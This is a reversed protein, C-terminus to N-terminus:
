PLLSAPAPVNMAPLLEAPAIELPPLVRSGLPPPLTEADVANRLQEILAPNHSKPVAVDWQLPDIPSEPPPQLCAPDRDLCVPPFGRPYGSSLFDEELSIMPRSAARAILPVLDMEVLCPLAGWGCCELPGLDGERLCSPQPYRQDDSFAFVSHWYYRYTADMDGITARIGELAERIRGLVNDGLPPPLAIVPETVNSAIVTPLDRWAQEFATDIASVDPPPPLEAIVNALPEDLGPPLPLDLRIIVPKLVPLRLSGSQIHVRMLDIVVAGSRTFLGRMTPLSNAPNAGIEYMSGAERRAPLWRDLLSPVRPTFRQNMCFPLNTKDHFIKYAAEIDRWLPLLERDIREQEGLLDRTQRLASRLGELIPRTLEYQMSLLAGAHRAVLSRLSRVHQSYTEYQTLRELIARVKPPVGPGDCTPTLLEQRVRLCWAHRLAAIEAIDDTFIPLTVPIEEVPMLTAAVVAGVIDESADLQVRIPRSQPDANDDARPPAPAFPPKTIDLGLALRPPLLLHIMPRSFLERAAQQQKQWWRVVTGTGTDDFEQILASQAVPHDEDVQLAARETVRDLAETDLSVNTLEGGYLRKFPGENLLSFAGSLKVWLSEPEPPLTGKPVDPDDLFSDAGYKGKGQQSSLLEGANEIALACRWDRGDTQRTVTDFEEYFGYCVAAVSKESIDTPVDDVIARRYGGAYKRFFSEYPANEPDDRVFRCSSIQPPVGPPAPCRCEPGVCERCNPYFRIAPPPPPDLNEPNPAPFETGTVPERSCTYSTRWGDRKCRRIVPPPDPPPPPDHEARARAPLMHTFLSTMWAPIRLSFPDRSLMRLEVTTTNSGQGGAALKYQFNDSRPFGPNPEYELSGDSNVNLQGNQAPSTVIVNVYTGAPAIRDNELVGPAPIRLTVGPQLWFVDSIAELEIGGGGGDGGASEAADGAIEGGDIGGDDEGGGEGLLEVTAPNSSQLGNNAAYQFTEHGAFDPPPTYVFSGDNRLDVSGASPPRTIFARLPRNEPDNDNALVGPANIVLPVNIFFGFLDNQAVPFAPNPVEEINEDPCDTYTFTNLWGCFDVCKGQSHPPDIQGAFPPGDMGRWLCPPDEFYPYPIFTDIHRQEEDSWIPIIISPRGAPDTGSHYPRCVTSLGTTTQPFEFTDLQEGDVEVRDIRWAMGSDINGLPSYPRGPFGDVRAVRGDGPTPGVQLSKNWGGCQAGNLYVPISDNNGSDFTDFIERLTDPFPNLTYPDRALTQGAHLGFAAILLLGCIRRANM